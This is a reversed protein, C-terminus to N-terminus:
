PRGAIKEQGGAAPQFPETTFLAFVPLHDSYGRGLHKGRGRDARQWRFINKRDDFLFGPDFKDFSNDVYTIGTNDYLARPLIFGDPSNKRDFYLYSWRRDPPLELWLNYHVAKGAPRTLDAETTLRNDVITGLMHNIGTLGSTDNLAKEGPLSIFEDYNSNFDGAIIYDTGPPLRDIANKLARAYAVRRSEPGQKSKWHNIFLVLPRHDYHVTVQLISRLGEGPSVEKRDTIPCTSIVACKVATDEQDAIASYPYPTGNNKLQRMLLDLAQRSEVEQLCVIDARLATLVRAINAAKIDAMARNWGFPGAPDYEPYEAGNDIADFLNGVNYAAIKITGADASPSLALLCCLAAACYLAIRKSLSSPTLVNVQMLPAAPSCTEHPQTTSDNLQQSFIHGTM